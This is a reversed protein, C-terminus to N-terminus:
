VVMLEDEAVGVVDGARLGDAVDVCDGDATGVVGVQGNYPESEDMHESITERSPQTLVTRARQGACQWTHVKGGEAAGVRECVALAFAVTTPAINSPSMKAILALSVISNLIDATESRRSRNELTVISSTLETVSVDPEMRRSTVKM